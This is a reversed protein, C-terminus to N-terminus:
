AALATKIGDSVEGMTAAQRFIALLDQYGLHLLRTSPETIKSEQHLRTDVPQLFSRFRSDWHTNDPDRSILLLKRRPSQPIRNSHEICKEHSAGRIACLDLPQGDVQVVAHALAAEFQAPSLGVAMIDLTHVLHSLAASETSNWEDACEPIDKCQAALAIAQTASQSSIRRIERVNIIHAEDAQEALPANNYTVSLSPIDDLEDNLWKVPATVPAAPARPEVAGYIPCVHANNVAFARGAPGAIISGPNVLSFSHICAGRERFYFDRYQQLLTSGDRFRSGGDSFTPVCSPRGFLTHPSLVISCGGFEVTRAPVPKGATNAFVLCANQRTANPFEIQNFFATVGTLFTDHSPKKNHQIVFLWSLPTLNGNAQEHLDSLIWQSPTRGNIPAIWDFCVLTGFRFPAGNELFGKFVYVSSGRFMHEHRINMEAWAPHLKPQIWRELTGDATKVWTIACNIWCQAPVSDAGNRMHDVHTHPDELLGLYQARDLADIGGIVITDPPWTNAKLLAEIHAIGDLGPISYEPFVTFHTKPEGHRAALSVTLTETLMALRQPKAEEICHFPEATTLSELPIHPQAIVMGIRDMPLPVDRQALDVTEVHIM